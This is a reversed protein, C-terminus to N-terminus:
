GRNKELHEEYTKSFSNKGGGMDSFYYYETEAPYLAAHLSERGPAGIPGPPLGKNIYTNYPSDAKIDEATLRPKPNKTVYIVTSCSELYQFQNSNLRNHFVSSVLERDTNCEREIISALTIIEHTTYGLEEARKRYEDTYELSFQRLCADIATHADTGKEFIYTEPFIYGELRYKGAPLGAIFDYDFIGTEAESYLEDESLELKESLLSIIQHLEYGEPITVKVNNQMKNVLVDIIEGYSMKSSFKGTGNKFYGANRIKTNLKFMFKNKIIGKEKLIETIEDGATGKSIEILETKEAVFLGNNAIYIFYLFLAAFAAIALPMIKKKM